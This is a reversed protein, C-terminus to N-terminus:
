GTGLELWYRLLPQIKSFVNSANRALNWPEPAWLAESASGLLQDLEEWPTQMWLQALEEERQVLPQVKERLRQCYMQPQGEAVAEAAMTGSLLARDVGGGHLPSAVGAADGALLLRDFVLQPLMKCPSLGGSRYQVEAQGLGEEELADHLRSWLGGCTGPAFDDSLRAVGVSAHKEDKPFVWFYGCFDPFLRVKWHGLWPTFDKEIVYHAGTLSHALYFDRFGYLFSTVPPVGSADIVWHHNEMVRGLNRGSIPENERIDVGQEGAKRALDRQWATRDLMYLDVHEVPFPAAHGAQLTLHEVKYRVGEEPNGWSGLADFFGEACNIEEGVAFKEFVTVKLGLEAARLAAALGAPGAGIIALTEQM